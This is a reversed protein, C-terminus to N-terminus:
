WLMGYVESGSDGHRNWTPVQRQSNNKWNKMASPTEAKKEVSNTPPSKPVEIVCRVYSEVESSSASKYGIGFDYMITVTKGVPRSKENKIIEFDATWFIANYFVEATRHLKAAEYFAEFEEYSPLRANLEKCFRRAREFDQSNRSSGSWFLDKFLFTPGSFKSTGTSSLFSKIREDQDEIKVPVHANAILSCLMLVPLLFTKM